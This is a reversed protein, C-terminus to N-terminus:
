NEINLFTRDIIGAVEARTVLTDMRFVKKNKLAFTGYRDLTYIYKAFHDDPSVDRYSRTSVEEPALQIARMFIKAAEARTIPADPRFTGDANEVAFKIYEAYWMNSPVDTFQTKTGVNKYRCSLARVLMKVYEARTVNATPKYTTTNRAIGSRKDRLYTQGDVSEDREIGRYMITHAIASSDGRDRARIDEPAYVQIVEECIYPTIPHIV